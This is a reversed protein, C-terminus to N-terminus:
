RGGRYCAAPRVGARRPTHRRQPPRRAPVMSANGVGRKRSARRCHARRAGVQQQGMGSLRRRWDRVGPRAGRGAARGQPHRPSRLQAAGSAAQREQHTARAARDDAHGREIVWSYLGSLATRARDAAVKHPLGDIIAVIEQRSIADILRWHLPQWTVKLYRTWEALTKERVEDERAQLYKPVLDGLTATNKAAAARQEAVVDTGLRAKALVESALKRMSALNGRIVKGLTKRRQQRGINFKVFYSARGAKGKPHEKNPKGDAFKRIGFGPLEDDFAQVDREGALVLMRDAFGEVFNPCRAM